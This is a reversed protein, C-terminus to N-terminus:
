KRGAMMDAIDKKYDGVQKLQYNDQLVKLVNPTVFAPLDSLCANGGCWLCM